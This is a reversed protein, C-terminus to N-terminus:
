YQSRPLFGYIGSYYVYFGGKNSGLIIVPEKRNFNRTKLLSLLTNKYESVISSNFNKQSLFANLRLENNFKNKLIFRKNSLFKGVKADEKLYISSLISNDDLIKVEEKNKLTSRVFSKFLLEKNLIQIDNFNQKNLDIYFTKKTM